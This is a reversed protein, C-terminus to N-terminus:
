LVRRMGPVREILLRALGFSVVVAAVALAVAKLEAPLPVPRLAFALGVLVPTQVMFAGYASRSVAPGVAALRRDLHRQSLGLVWISGFVGVVVEFVSWGLSAWHWSGGWWQDEDLGVAVAIGTFAVLGLVGAAAAIGARRWEADPVEDFWGRRAAVVGLVFLTLCAPWEWVNLSVGLNGEGFPVVVRVVYTAVAVPPVLLLLRRVVLTRRM